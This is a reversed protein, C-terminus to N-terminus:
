WSGKQLTLVVKRIKQRWAMIRTVRTKEALKANQKIKEIERFYDGIVAHLNQTARKGTNRHM